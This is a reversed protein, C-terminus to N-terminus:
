IITVKGQTTAPKPAQPWTITPTRPDFNEPDELMIYTQWRLGVRTRCVTPLAASHLLEAIAFQLHKAQPDSLQQTSQTAHELAPTAPM